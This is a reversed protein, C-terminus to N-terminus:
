YRFTSSYYERPKFIYIRLTVREPNANRVEQILEQSKEFDGDSLLLTGKTDPDTRKDQNSGSPVSQMQDFANLTALAINRSATTM